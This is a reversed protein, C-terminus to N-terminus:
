CGCKAAVIDLRSHRCCPSTRRGKWNPESLPWQLYASTPHSAIRWVNAHEPEYQEHYYMISKLFFIQKGNCNLWHVMVETVLTPKQSYHVHSVCLTMHQILAEWKLSRERQKMKVTFDTILDCCCNDVAGSDTVAVPGFLFVFYFSLCCGPNSPIHVRARQMATSNKEMSGRQHKLSKQRGQVPM